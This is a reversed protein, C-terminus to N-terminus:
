SRAALETQASEEPFHASEKAELPDTTGGHDGTLKSDADVTKGHLQSDSFHRQSISSFWVVGSLLHMLPPFLRNNRLRELWESNFVMKHFALNSDVSIM